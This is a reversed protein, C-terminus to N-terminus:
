NLFVDELNNRQKNSNISLAGTLVKTTMDSKPDSYSPMVDLIHKLYLWEQLGHLSKHISWKEQAPESM